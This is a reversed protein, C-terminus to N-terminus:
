VGDGIIGGYSWDISSSEGFLTIASSRFNTSVILYVNFKFKLFSNPGSSAGDVM